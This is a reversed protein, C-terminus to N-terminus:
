FTCNLIWVLFLVVPEHVVLQLTSYGVIDRAKLGLIGFLPLMWFPHLLDALAETANYTPV